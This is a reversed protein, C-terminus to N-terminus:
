ELYIQSSSTIGKNGETSQSKSLCWYKILMLWGTRKLALVSIGSSGLSYGYPGMVEPLFSQYATKSQLSVRGAPLNLAAGFIDWLCSFELLWNHGTGGVPLYRNCM